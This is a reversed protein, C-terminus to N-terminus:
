NSSTSRKANEVIERSSWYPANAASLGACFTRMRNLDERTDIDLKAEPFWLQAPAQLWGIKFESSHRTIYSTVHERYYNGKAKEAIKLLLDAKVTECGLGDPLGCEPTNNAAYDFRGRHFFDVLRDIEEPSILPNDACIRVIATPRYTHIAKIFRSLVDIEPGRVTTVGIRNAMKELPDCSKEESTALIVMELKEAAKVRLLVLELLSHNKYIKELSKGPLRKSNMRAQVVGITTLMENL